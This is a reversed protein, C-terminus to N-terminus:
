LLKKALLAEYIEATRRVMTEISFCEQARRKAAEGLRKALGPDAALRTVAAALATPNGPEVLLAEKEHRVLEPIGGVSTTIIPLGAHMAEVVSAPLGEWQSPLMFIDMAALLLPTEEVYGLFRIAHAVGREEALRAIAGDSDDRGAFLFVTDPWDRLILPLAEIVDRHGKMERLNALIGIVPWAKDAVGLSRRIEARHEIPIERPPIGSYVVEIREPAFKEREITAQRGAESNSIFKDVLPATLRDLWVHWWRRWPDISRISSVIVPVGSLKALVRGVTDARLGYTQVLDFQERKLFRFLRAIGRLSLGKTTGFHEGPVGLVEARRLLEGRGQLCAVTPSFREKDIHEVLFLIMRETGGMDSTSALQLIRWPRRVNRKESGM